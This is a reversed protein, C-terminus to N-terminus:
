AQAPERGPEQGLVWGEWRRIALDDPIHDPRQGDVVAIVCLVGLLCDFRDEGAADTGFGDALSQALAPSPRVALRRIAAGLAPAMAVRDAQRRKSGQRRVGLQVMADAPYTEALVVGGGAAACRALLAHLGGEFPWLRPPCSSLLGPVVMDHWASLASKGAQNAGLTWFLPAGAPRAGTAADCARGLSPIGLAAAHAARTMGARGRRPYFPRDPSVEALTDCVRFFEPREALGRLFAPFDPARVHAAAYAAPLGLPLDVGLAVAGGAARAALRVLLTAPDGVAEPACLHWGRPTRSAVAM